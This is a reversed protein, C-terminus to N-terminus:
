ITTTDLSDIDVSQPSVAVRCVPCLVQPQAGRELVSPRAFHAEACHRHLFHFCPLTRIQQGIKIDDLCVSCAEEHDIPSIGVCSSRMAVSEADDGAGRVGGAARVRGAGTRGWGNGAGGTAVAIPADLLGNGAAVAANVTNGQPGSAGSPQPQPWIVDGNLRVVGNNTELSVATGPAVRTVFEGNVYVEGNVISTSVSQNGGGGQMASAGFGFPNWTSNWMLQTQRGDMQSQQAQHAESQLRRGAERVRERQDRAAESQARGAERVREMQERRADRADHRAERLDQLQERRQEHAETQMERMRERQADRRRHHPHRAAHLGHWNEDHQQQAYGMDAHMQQQMQAMQGNMQQQSQMMDRQMGQMMSQMDRQMDWLM